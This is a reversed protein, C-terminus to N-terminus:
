LRPCRATRARTSPRGPTRTPWFSRAQALDLAAPSVGEGLEAAHRERDVDVAPSVERIALFHQRAAHRQMGIGVPHSADTVRREVHQTGFPAVSGSQIAASPLPVPPADRQFEPAVADIKAGDPRNVGQWRATRAFRRM